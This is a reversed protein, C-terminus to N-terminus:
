SENLEIDIIQKFVSPKMYLLHDFLKVQYWELNSQIQSLYEEDSPKSDYGPCENPPQTWREATICDTYEVARVLLVSTIDVM